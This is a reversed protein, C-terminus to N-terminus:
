KKGRRIRYGEYQLAKANKKQKELVNGADGEFTEKVTDRLADVEDNLNRSVRKSRVTENIKEQRKRYEDIKQFAAPENGKKIERAVEEKLRNFDERVVKDEWVTPKISGVVEKEDEVCSITFTEKITQTYAKDDGRYRMEINQLSFTKVKETSIHFTLFLKRSQGGYLNGPRVIATNDKYIVPYGSAGTLKMGPSLPIRIELGSAAINKTRDLENLFVKAFADPNELYHYTGAGKDAIGTMLVENFDNGVGVTSVSFGIEPAQGAMQGLTQTDVIGRNALGDSILVIKGMREEKKMKEMMRIGQRLGEGLNTSGGVRIRNVEVPFRKRDFETLSMLESEITVRDSYSILGFCDEVDMNKVMKLIADKAFRIKKGDMSGSRDLVVVMDVPRINREDSLNTVNSADLNLMLSVTGDEGKLVRDQTLDASIRIPSGETEPNAVVDHKKAEITYAMALCTGLALVAIVTLMKRHNKKM